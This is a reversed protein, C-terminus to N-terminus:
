LKYLETYKKKLYRCYPETSLPDGTILKVLQETNYQKGRSHIETKLWDRIFELQGEAVLNSWDPNKKTFTEFFQASCLNGLAYTPFYGFDGLSWHIDQLCGERDTPPTIGFFDEMKRNWATPLDEVQLQGSILALELEFRLIVHLCYTVEDAEVRIFSPAVKNIAKYFRQLPIKKLKKPFAKQVLTYHSKWFPLSRGILTEWWRSQSEHISLSVAEALPTGFHEAPLGMEYLSHGAEHLISFLNSM